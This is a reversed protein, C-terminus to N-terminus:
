GRYHHPARSARTGEVWFGHSIGRPLFAFTGPGGKWAKYGSVFSLEGELVYFIEDEADHIHYPSDGPPVLQEIWTIRGGSPVATNKLV